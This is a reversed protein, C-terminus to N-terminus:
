ECLGQISIVKIVRVRKLTQFTLMNYQKRCCHPSLMKNQFLLYIGMGLVAESSNM